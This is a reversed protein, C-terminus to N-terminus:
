EFLKYNQFLVYVLCNLFIFLAVLIILSIRTPVTRALRAMAVLNVAAAASDSLMAVFGCGPKVTALSGKNAWGVSTALLITVCCPDNVLM